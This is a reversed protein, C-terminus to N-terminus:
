EPLAPRVPSHEGKAPSFAGFLWGVLEMIRTRIPSYCYALAGLFTGITNTAVDTMDSDRTPLFGQFFEISLSIFFGSLVVLVIRSSARHRSEGGLWHTLLGCFCFGFPLFGTVNVVLDKWGYISPMKRQLFIKDVVLYREPILLNGKGARNHVVRGAGEDFLYLAKVQDEPQPTLGGRQTWEMYHSEVREPALARNYVALGKWLGSFTSTSRPSDFVLIRGALERITFTLDKSSIRLKGDIYISTTSGTSTITLFTSGQRKFVDPVYIWHLPPDSGRGRWSQQVALATEMQHLSFQMRSARDYWSVFTNWDDILGPELWIEISCDVPSTIPTEHLFPADGIMTGYEGFRVGRGDASWAALNQPAHFPGLGAIVFAGVVLVCALVFLRLQSGPDKLYPM